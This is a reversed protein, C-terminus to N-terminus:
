NCNGPAFLKSRGNSSGTLQVCVGQARVYAPSSVGDAGTGWASGAGDVRRLGVDVAGSGITVACNLGLDPEYFLYVQGGAPLSKPWGDAYRTYERAGPERGQNCIVTPDAAQVASTPSLLVAAVAAVLVGAWSTRVKRRM